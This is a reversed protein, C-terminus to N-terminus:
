ELDLFWKDNYSIGDGKLDSYLPSSPTAEPELLERNAVRSALFSNDAFGGAGEYGADAARHMAVRMLDGFRYGEFCTELAMEDIIKEEVFRISDMLTSLDSEIVYTDDFSADGCGRSHLGITNYLDTNAYYSYYASHQIGGFDRVDDKATLNGKRFSSSSIEYVGSLGLGNARMMESEDIYGGNVVDYSLGYKLIAFATQPLGCRNLAEALRLYIVDNRYISVKEANIKALTQQETSAGSIKDDVKVEKIKLVSQLRLDGQRLINSQELKNPYIAYAKVNQSAKDYSHYCYNQSASLGALGNSYTLQNWNGNRDELSNFILPLESITGNYDDAEMPIYTIFNDSKMNKGFLGSYSDDKDSLDIFRTEFWSVSATTTPRPKNEVNYLYDFYMKAAEAYQESWLYLDGMIVRVPIFLDTSTHTESESGDGTTEGGLSGYDPFRVNLFKPKSGEVFDELLAAALHRIDMEPYKGDPIDSSMIPENVYKVKGYVQALQLYTWARFSLIAVYESLFINNNNRMKATDANALFFNCDNIIAYYDAANALSVDEGLRDFQFNYVYSLEKSAKDTLRVLDGRLENLLVTRDAIKQLGGIVGMVSYVTDSANDLKNQDDYMVMKSDVKLMDECSTSAGLVAIAAIATFISTKLKM